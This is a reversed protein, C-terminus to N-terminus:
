IDVDLTFLGYLDLPRNVGFSLSIAKSPNYPNMGPYVSWAFAVNSEEDSISRDACFRFRFDSRPSYLTFYVYSPVCVNDHVRMLVFADGTKKDTFTINPTFYVYVVCDSIPQLCLRLPREHSILEM